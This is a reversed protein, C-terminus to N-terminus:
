PQWRKWGAACRACVCCVRSTVSAQDRPPTSVHVAAVGYTYTTHLGVTVNGAMADAFDCLSWEFSNFGCVGVHANPRLTRKLGKAVSTALRGVQEYTLWLYRLPVICGLLPLPKNVFLVVRM